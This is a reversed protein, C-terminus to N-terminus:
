ALLGHVRQICPPTNQLKTRKKFLLIEGGTLRPPAVHQDLPLAGGRDLPVSRAPWLWTHAGTAPFAHDDGLWPQIFHEHCCVWKTVENQGRVPTSVWTSM